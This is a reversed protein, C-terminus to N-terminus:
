ENVPQMGLSEIIKEYNEEEESFILEENSEPVGLVYGWFM